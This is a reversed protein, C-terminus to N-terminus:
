AVQREEEREAEKEQENGVAAMVKMGEAESAEAVNSSETTTTGATVSAGKVAVTVAAAAAAQEELRRKRESAAARMRALVDGEKVKTASGAATTAAAGGAGKGGNGAGGSGAGWVGMFLSSPKGAAAAGTRTGAGARAVGGAGAVGAGAAAPPKLVQPLFLKYKRDAPISLRMNADFEYAAVAREAASREDFIITATNGKIGTMEVRKIPGFRVLLQYLSEDSHSEALTSRKWKAKVETSTGIGLAAAAAAAASAAVAADGAKGEEVQEPEEEPGDHMEKGERQTTAGGNGGKEEEEKARRFVAAAAAENSKHM